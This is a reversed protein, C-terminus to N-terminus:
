AGRMPRFKGGMKECLLARLEEPTGNTFFDKDLLYAEAPSTFLYFDQRTEAAGFLAAFQVSAAQGGGGEEGKVTRQVGNATVITVERQLAAGEKQRFLAAPRMFFTYYVYVLVGAALLALMLPPLGLAFLFVCLVLAILPLALAARGSRGGKQPHLMRYRYFRGYIQENAPMEIRCLM